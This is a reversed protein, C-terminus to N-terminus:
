IKLFLRIKITNIKCNGKFISNDEFFAKNKIKLNKVKQEFVSYLQKILKRNAKECVIIFDDNSLSPYVTSVERIDDLFLKYIGM